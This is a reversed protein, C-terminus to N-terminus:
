GCQLDHSEDHASPLKGCHPRPGLGRVDIKGTVAASILASRREGLLAIACESQRELELIAATSKNLAEFIALMEKHPPIPMRMDALQGCTIAGKTSGVGDSEFRMQEYAMEFYYRLFEVSVKSDIPKVYALHQNLTAEIGLVRATGRTKGEGTIGVVVAPPSVIPLHCEALATATVLATPETVTPQNVVGSSLWPFHGGEWYDVRDRNPTSGNGVRAFHKIPVVSWHAPVQGLWEVGSDKMPVNPDLGKTVAQSIVAQRKENLLEILRKQEEVLADIKTTERDLFAAITGQEEISPVPLVFNRFDDQSLNQMSSSTGACAMEVQARYAPTHSWYHVYCPSAGHLTVQWLRDPLFLDPYSQRAVGAIGVLEPTNMRSVLLTGAVVPCALRDREDPLVAKNQTPDFEGGYVCSTKLVGLEGEGAPTDVANVSVGSDIGAILQKLPLVAWHSPAAGLWEVGSDRYRPYRLFSM